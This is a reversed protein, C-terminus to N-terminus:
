TFSVAQDVKSEKPNTRDLSQHMVEQHDQLEHDSTQAETTPTHSIVKTEVLNIVTAVEAAAAARIGIIEATIRKKTKIGTTMVDIAGDAATTTTPRAAMDEEERAAGTEGAAMTEIMIAMAKNNTGAEKTDVEPNTAEAVEAQEMDLIEGTKIIAMDLMMKLIQYILVNQLMSIL